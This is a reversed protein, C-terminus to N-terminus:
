QWIITIPQGLHLENYDSSILAKVLYVFKHSNNDSFVMPPTYTAESSIFSVAAKLKMNNTTLLNIEKGIKINELEEIPLYFKVYMKTKDMLSAVPKFAPVWEGIQYYTELITGSIPAVVHQQNLKSKVQKLNYESSTVAAENAIVLNSRAGKKQEKINAEAELVLAELREKDSKYSDFSDQDIVGKDKLKIAREYRKLSLNYSAKSQELNAELVKLASIRIGKVSDALIAKNRALDASLMSAKDELSTDYLSYVQSGAKINAGEIAELTVLRGAVPSNLYVLDADIFGQYKTTSFKCSSLLLLFIAALLRKM